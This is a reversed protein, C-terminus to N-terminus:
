WLSLPLSCRLGSLIFHKKEKLFKTKTKTFLSATYKLMYDTSIHGNIKNMPFFRHTFQLVIMNEM